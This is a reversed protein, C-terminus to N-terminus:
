KSKSVRRNKFLTKHCFWLYCELNKDLFIFHKLTRTNNENLDCNDPLWNEYTDKDLGYSTLRIPTTKYRRMSLREYSKMSFKNSLYSCQRSTKMWFPIKSINKFGGIFICKETLEIKKEEKELNSMSGLHYIKREIVKQFSDTGFPKDVSVMNEKKGFYKENDKNELISQYKNITLNQMLNKIFDNQIKM